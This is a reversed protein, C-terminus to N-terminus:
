RRRLPRKGPHKKQKLSQCSQRFSQFPVSLGYLSQSQRQKRPLAKRCSHNIIRLRRGAISEQGHAASGEASPVGSQHRPAPQGSEWSDPPVATGPLGHPQTPHSIPIRGCHKRAFCPEKM